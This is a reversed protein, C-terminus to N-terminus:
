WSGFEEAQGDLSKEVWIGVDYTKRAAAKRGFLVDKITSYIVSRYYIAINFSRIM